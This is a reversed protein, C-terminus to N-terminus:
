AKRLIKHTNESHTAANLAASSEENNEKRNSSTEKKKKMKSNVMEIKINKPYKFNLSAM